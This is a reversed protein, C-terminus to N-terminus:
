SAVVGSCTEVASVIEDQEVLVSITLDMEAM